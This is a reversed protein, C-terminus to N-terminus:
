LRQSRPREILRCGADTRTTSLSRRTYRRHHGVQRDMSSYLVQLAPVYALLQGGIRLKSRCKRLVARDDEVHEMVNLAYLFDVSDDELEAVESMVALGTAAIARAQAEDPEVCLVQFGQERMRIAFTGIGAGLDVITQGHSAHAVILSLLFANYNAAHTMAQLNSTGSYGM